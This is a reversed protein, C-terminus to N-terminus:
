HPQLCIYPCQHRCVSVPFFSSNVGKKPLCIIVQLFLLVFFHIIPCFFRVLVTLVIFYHENLMRKKTKQLFLRLKTHNKLIRLKQSDFNLILSM